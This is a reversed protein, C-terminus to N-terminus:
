GQQVDCAVFVRVVDVAFVVLIFGEQEDREQGRERDFPLESIGHNNM